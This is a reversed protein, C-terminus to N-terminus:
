RSILLQKHGGGATKFGHLHTEGVFIAQQGLVHSKGRKPQRRRHPWRQKAVSRPNGTNGSAHAIGCSFVFM